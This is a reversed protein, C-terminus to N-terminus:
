SRNNSSVGVSSQCLPERIQFDDIDPPARRRDPEMRFLMPVAEDVPLDQLWSDWSCWSALATNSLPLNAPMQKRVDFLLNRYFQRQSRTADFDIQMAAIGPERASALIAPVAEARNEDDLVSLRTAEIRVVPIRTSSASFIVPDRRPRSEVGLGITLTQDLYAIAFEKTDLSRLDQRREWAWLTLRPLSAL